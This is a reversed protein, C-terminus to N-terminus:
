PANENVWEPPLRDRIAKICASVSTRNRWWLLLFFPGLIFCLVMVVCFFQFVRDSDISSTSLTAALSVAVSLLAVAFNLLLSDPGGREILELEAAEVEYITLRNYRGRRIEPLFQGNEDFGNLPLSESM